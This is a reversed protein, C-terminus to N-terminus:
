LMPQSPPRAQISAEIRFRESIAKGSGDTLAPDGAIDFPVVGADTHLTAYLYEGDKTARSVPITINHQQGSPLLKSVGLLAGPKRNNDEQIAIYGPKELRVFTVTVSKGLKQDPVLLSNQAELYPAVTVTDGQGCTIDTLLWDSGEKKLAVYVTHPAGTFTEHVEVTATDGSIKQNDVSIGSPKNRSCLVPDYSTNTLSAVTSDLQKAFDKDIAANKQYAKDAVPNGFYNLWWEYFSKTASTPTQAKGNPIALVVAVVIVLLIIVPIIRPSINKM